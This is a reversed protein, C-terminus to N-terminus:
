QGQDASYNIGAKELVKEVNNRWTLETVAKIRAAEGFQKRLEPNELFQVTRDFFLQRDNPPFLLGDSGSCIIEEIPGYAPAVIAKKMAMYEIVKMPSGFPNSDPMTAIDFLELYYKILLHPVKGTIFVQKDLGAQAVRQEIQNRMPGDGVLLLVPRQGDQYKSALDCYVDLLFDLGHWPAFSGVFGIVTKGAAFNRANNLILDDPFQQVPTFRAPDIANPTVIIRDASIGYEKIIKEKLYNSVVVLLQANGFVYREIIRALWRIRIERVDYDLCTTNVELIFPIQHRRALRCVAFGFYGYREYIFRPPEGQRRASALARAAALHSRFNYAIELLKFVINPMSSAIAHLVKQKLSKGKLADHPQDESAVQSEDSSSQPSFLSIDTIGFGIEELANQVGLIHVGEAGSARTRHHYLVNM